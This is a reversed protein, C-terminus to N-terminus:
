RRQNQYITRRHGVTIMELVLSDEQIAVLLRFNGIRYRWYQRLSYSLQKGKVKPNECGELNQAIWGVILKANSPGIRKLDKEFQATPVLRYAM